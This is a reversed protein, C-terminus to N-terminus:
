EGTADKEDEDEDLASDMLAGFGWFGEMQVYSLSEKIIFQM